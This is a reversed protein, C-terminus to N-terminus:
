AAGEYPIRLADMRGRLEIIRAAIGACRGRDRRPNLQALEDVLADHEARIDDADPNYAHWARSERKAADISFGSVRDAKRSRKGTGARDWFSECGCAAEFNRALNRAANVDGPSWSVQVRVGSPLEYVLHGASNTGAVKRWGHPCSLVRRVVAQTDSRSSM